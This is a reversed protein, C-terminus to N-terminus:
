NQVIKRYAGPTVGFARKFARTLHSQDAFGCEQAIDALRLGPHPSCLLRRAADLRLQTQYGHPPLGMTRTFVRILHFPSLGTAAALEDLGVNEPARAHLMERALAVARPARGAERPESRSEAHLALWRALVARLRTQLELASASRSEALRHLRAIRAALGPDDIVGHRFHPLGSLGGAGSTERAADALLGPELYFMRYSWGGPAAAHGDHPEGPVVLNVLGASAVHNAGLYSFGLAGDEILGIAYCDHTHRSFVQREFRARLMQTGPLAPDRFLVSEEGARGASGAKVRGIGHRRMGPTM